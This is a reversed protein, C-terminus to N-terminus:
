IGSTDNPFQYSVSRIVHPKGPALDFEVRMKKKKRNATTDISVEADLFGANMMAKRLQAADAVTATSDFIVPAEGLKRVWRNWWKTTDNGSMNYIGLRFKTSWLMKHNPQMRVYSMLQQENLRGTSDNLNIKVEDLLYKGDPVHRSSSCGWLITLFAVAVALKIGSFIKM